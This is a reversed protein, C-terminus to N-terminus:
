CRHIVTIVNVAALSSVRDYLGNEYDKRLKHYRRMDRKHIINIVLVPEDIIQGDLTMLVSISGDCCQKFQVISENYKQRCRTLAVRAELKTRKM